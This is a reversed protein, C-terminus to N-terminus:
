ILTTQRTKECPPETGIVYRFTKNIKTCRGWHGETRDTYISFSHHEFYPCKKEMNAWMNPNCSKM